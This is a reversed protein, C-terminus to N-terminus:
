LELVCDSAHVNAATRLQGSAVASRGRWAYPAVHLSKSVATHHTLCSVVPQQCM